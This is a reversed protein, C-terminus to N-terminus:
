RNIVTFGNPPINVNLMTAIIVGDSNYIDIRVVAQASTGNVIFIQTSFGDGSTVQPLILATQGPPSNTPVLSFSLGSYQLGMVVIPATSNITLLGTGKVGLLESVFRSMQHLSALAITRSTVLAGQQSTLTFTINAAFNSANVIAIGTDQGTSSDSDVVLTTATVVSGSWVNSQSVQDGTNFAIKGSVLLGAGTGVVPQIVAFGTQVNQEQAFASPVGFIVALMSMLAIPKM